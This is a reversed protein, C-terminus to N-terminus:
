SSSSAPPPSGSTGRLAGVYRRVTAWASRGGHRWVWPAWRGAKRAAVLASVIAVNIATMPVLVQEIIGDPGGPDASLVEQWWGGFFERDAWPGFIIAVLIVLFAFHGCVIVAMAASM